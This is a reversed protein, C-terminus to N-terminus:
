YYFSINLIIALKIHGLLSQSKFSFLFVNQKLKTFRINVIPNQNKQLM